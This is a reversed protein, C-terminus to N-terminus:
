VPRKPLRYIPPLNLRGMLLHLSSSSCRSVELKQQLVEDRELRESSPKGSSVLELEAEAEAQKLMAVM